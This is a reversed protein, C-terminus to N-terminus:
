PEQTMLGSQIAVGYEVVYDESVYKHAQMVAETLTDHISRPEPAPDIWDPRRTAALQAEDLTIFVKGENASDGQITWGNADGNFGYGEMPAEGSDFEDVYHISAFRHSVAFKGNELKSVFYYNDASM